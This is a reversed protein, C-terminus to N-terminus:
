KRIVEDYINKLEKMVAEESYKTIYKRANKVIDDCSNSMVYEIKDSLEEVDNTKVLYGNFDNKIIDKHGRNNTAIVPVDASMAEIVNIGLGERLSTTVACNAINLIRNVDRRYGLLFINDQLDVKKIEREYYEKLPGNGLIFLKINNYKQCLIKMANIQMIQNKNTNLEGISIIIFDNENINLEKKLNNKELESSKSKFKTINVGTSNIKYIKETKFKSKALKYDEENITILADTYKALYKEIPYYIIWNKKPAGKYFHFGHATYIIKLGDRRYKRGALRTILGGVPTNCHIIDYKEKKIIEKVTKYNGINKLSFPSRSFPVDFVKDVMNISLGNKEKLNNKACVHVIYGKEKLMKILPQHFQAIHSQVTAVLLVKHM